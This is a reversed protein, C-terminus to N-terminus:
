LRVYLQASGLWKIGGAGIYSTSGHLYYETKKALCDECILRQSSSPLSESVHNISTLLLSSDLLYIHRYHELM